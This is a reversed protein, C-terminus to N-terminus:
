RGNKAAEAQRAAERNEQNMKEWEVRDAGNLTRGTVDKM